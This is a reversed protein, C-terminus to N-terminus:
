IPLAWCIRTGCRALRREQDRHRAARRARDLKGPAIRRASRGLETARQGCPLGDVRRVLGRAGPHEEGLRAARDALLSRLRDVSASACGVCKLAMARLGAEAEMRREEAETLETTPM